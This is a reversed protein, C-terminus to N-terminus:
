PAGEAGPASPYQRGQCGVRLGALDAPSLGVEAPCPSDEHELLRRGGGAASGGGSAGDEVGRGGALEPGTRDGALDTVAARLKMVYEAVEYAARDSASRAQLAELKELWDLGKEAEDFKDEMGDTTKM